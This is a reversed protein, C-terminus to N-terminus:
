SGFFLPKATIDELSKPKVTSIRVPGRQMGCETKIADGPTTSEPERLCVWDLSGYQL